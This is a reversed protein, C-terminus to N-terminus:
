FEASGLRGFYFAALMALEGEVWADREVLYNKLAAELGDISGQLTDHQFSVPFEAVEAVYGGDTRRILASVVQPSM